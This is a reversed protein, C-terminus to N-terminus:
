KPRIEVTRDSFVAYTPVYLNPHDRNYGNRTFERTKITRGAYDYSPDHCPDFYGGRWDINRDMAATSKGPPIHQLKCGFKTSYGWYLFVGLAPVFAKSEPRWVHADLFKLSAM